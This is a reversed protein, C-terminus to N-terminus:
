KEANTIIKNIQQALENTCTRKLYLWIGNFRCRNIRIRAQVTMDEATGISEDSKVVVNCEEAIVVSM